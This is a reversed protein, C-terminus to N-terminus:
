STFVIDEPSNFMPPNETLATKVAQAFERALQSRVKHRPFCLSYLFQVKPRFPRITVGNKTWNKASFPDLLGVGLGEAVMAYCSHARQSSVRASVKIGAEDLMRDISALSHALDLGTLDLEYDAEFDRDLFRQLRREESM